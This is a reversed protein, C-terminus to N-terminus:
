GSRPRKAPPSSAPESTQLLESIKKGLVAEIDGIITTPRVLEAKAKDLLSDLKAIKSAM